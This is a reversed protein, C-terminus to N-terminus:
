QDARMVCVMVRPEAHGKQRAVQQRFYDRWRTLEEISNMYEISRDGISIKTQQITLARGAIKAELAELTQEEVTRPDYDAAAMALNMEVCFTGSSIVRGADDSLQYVFTGPRDGAPFSFCGNQVNVMVTPMGATKCALMVANEPAQIVIQTGTYFKEM